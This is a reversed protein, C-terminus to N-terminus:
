LYNSVGAGPNPYLAGGAEPVARGRRRLGHRADGDGSHHGGGHLSRSLIGAATGAGGADAPQGKRRQRGGGCPRGARDYSLGGCM